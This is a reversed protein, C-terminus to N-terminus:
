SRQTHRLTETLRELAAATREQATVLRRALGVLYVILAVWVGVQLLALGIAGTETFSFMGFRLPAFTATLTCARPDARM